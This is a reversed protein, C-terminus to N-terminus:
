DGRAAESQGENDGKVELLVVRAELCWTIRRGSTAGGEHGGDGVGGSGGHEQWDVMQCLAVGFLGGSKEKGRM